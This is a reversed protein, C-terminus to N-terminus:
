ANVVENLMAAVLVKRERWFELRREGVIFINGCCM